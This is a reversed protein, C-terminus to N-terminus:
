REVKRNIQARGALIEQRSRIIDRTAWTSKTFHQMCAIATFIVDTMEFLFQMKEGDVDEPQKRPNQGTFGILRQIAEGLEEIVKSCRAWDQALPQDLYQQSTKEDLWKDILEIAQWDITDEQVYSM